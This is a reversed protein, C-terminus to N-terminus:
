EYWSSAVEALGALVPGYIDFNSSGNDFTHDMVLRDGNKPRSGFNPLLGLLIPTLHGDM